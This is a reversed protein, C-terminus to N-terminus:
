KHVAGLVCSVTNLGWGTATAVSHDSPNVTALKIPWVVNKILVIKETPALLFIDHLTGTVNPNFGEHFIGYKGKYKYAQASTRSISGAIIIIHSINKKMREYQICHGATLIWNESIISGGCFHGYSDSLSVQYPYTKPKADSGGIIPQPASLVQIFSNFFSIINWLLM